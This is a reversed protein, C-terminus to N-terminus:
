QCTFTIRPAGTILMPKGDATQLWGSWMTRELPAVPGIGIFGRQEGSSVWAVLSPCGVGTQSRVTGALSASGAQWAVIEGAYPQFAPPDYSPPSGYRVSDHVVWGFPIAVAAICALVLLRPFVERRLWDKM